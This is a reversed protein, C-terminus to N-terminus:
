LFILGPRLNQCGLSRHDNHSQHPSAQGVPRPRHRQVSEGNGVPRLLLNGSSSQNSHIQYRLLGSCQVTPVYSAFTTKNEIGLSARVQVSSTMSSELSNSTTEVPSKETSVVPSNSESEESTPTPPLESQPMIRYEILYITALGCVTRLMAFNNGLPSDGSGREM